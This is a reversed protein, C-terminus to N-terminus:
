VLAIEVYENQVDGEVDVEDDDEDKEEEEEKKVPSPNSDTEDISDQSDSDDGDSESKGPLLSWTFDIANLRKIRREMEHRDMRPQKTSQGTM